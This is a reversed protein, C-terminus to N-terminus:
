RAWAPRPRDRRGPRAVAGTRRGQRRDRRRSHRRHGAAGPSRGQPQRRSGAPRRELRGAGGDAAGRAHPRHGSLRPPHPLHHGAACVPGAGGPLPRDRRLRHARRPHDARPRRRRGAGVCGSWCADGGAVPSCDLRCVVRAHPRWRLLTRPPACAQAFIRQHAPQGTIELRAPWPPGAEPRGPRGPRERGPARRAAVPPRRPGSAAGTARRARVTRPPGPGSHRAGTEPPWRPAAPRRHAPAAAPSGTRRPAPWGDPRRSRPPPGGTGATGPCRGAAGAVPPPGCRGRGSGPPGRSAVAAPPAARFWRVAPRAGAAHGGRWRRRGAVHGREGGRDGQYRSGVAAMSAPVARAASPTPVPYRIAAKWAFSLASRPAWRGAVVFGIADRCSLRRRVPRNSSSPPAIRPALAAPGSGTARAPRRPAPPAAPAPPANKLAAESIPAPM